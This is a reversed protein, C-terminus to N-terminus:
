VNEHDGLEKAIGNDIAEQIILQMKRKWSEKVDDECEDLVDIRNAIVRFCADAATQAATAM